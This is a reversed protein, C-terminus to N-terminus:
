SGLSVSNPLASDMQNWLILLPSLFLLLFCTFASGAPPQRGRCTVAREWEGWLHLSGLHWLIKLEEKTTEFKSVFEKVNTGVHPHPSSGVRGKLRPLNTIPKYGIFHLLLSQLIKLVPDSFAICSSCKKTPISGKPARLKWAPFRVATPSGHQSSAWTMHEPWCGWALDWGVARM